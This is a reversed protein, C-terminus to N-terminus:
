RADRMGASFEGVAGAAYRLVAKMEKPLPLEISYVCAEVPHVGSHRPGEHIKQLERKNGQSRNEEQNIRNGGHRCEQCDCRIGAGVM